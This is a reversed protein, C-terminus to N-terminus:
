KKIWKGSQVKGRINQISYIYMETPLHETNITTIHNNIAQSILLNGKIDYLEFWANKITTRINLFDNGPNPYILADYFKIPGPHEINVPLGTTDLKVLYAKHLIPTVNIDFFAGTMLVGGDSTATICECWYHMDGGIYKEYILELNHDLMAIYYWTTDLSSHYHGNFSGGLYIFSTDIVDMNRYWASTSSTDPSSLRKKKIINLNDDLLYATFYMEVDGSLIYEDGASIVVNGPWLTSEFSMDYWEPYHMVSEQDLYTNLEIITNEVVGPIEHAGHVHLFYKTSDFSFTLSQVSGASDGQYYRFALSDGWNSLKLLYMNSTSLPNCAFIFEDHLTMLFKRGSAAYTYGFNFQREWVINLSYDTRIFVEIQKTPGQDKDYYICWFLYGGEGVNIESITEINFLTDPKYFLMSSTDGDQSISFVRSYKLVISDNSLISFTVPCIINDYKNQIPQGPAVIANDKDIIIEYDVEQSFVPLCNLICLFLILHRISKM